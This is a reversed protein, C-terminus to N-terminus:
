TPNQDPEHLAPDQYPLKHFSFTASFGRYIHYKVTLVVGDGCGTTAQTMLDSPTMLKPGAVEAPYVLNVASTPGPKRGGSQLAAYARSVTPTPDKRRYLTLIIPSTSQELKALVGRFIDKKLFTGICNHRIWKLRSNSLERQECLKLGHPRGM